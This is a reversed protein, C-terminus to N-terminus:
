GLLVPISVLVDALLNLLCHAWIGIWINRKWWILYVMPLFALLRIPLQWPSWLHYIMFLVAGALPAWAGLAAIRPLLLGRFYLEEVLPGLLAGFVLSLVWVVIRVGRAYLEPHELVDGLQFYSPLWSFFTARMFGDLTEGLAAYVAVVWILSLGVFLALQRWPLPVTFRIVSRIGTGPAERRVTWLLIGVECVLIVLLSLQLFLLSPLGKGALIENLLVFVGVGLVGPALHLIIQKWLPFQPTPPTEEPARSFLPRLSSNM